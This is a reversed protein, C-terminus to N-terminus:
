HDGETRTGAYREAAERTVRFGPSDYGGFGFRFFIPLSCGYELMGPLAAAAVLGDRGPFRPGPFYALVANPPTPDLIVGAYELWAREFPLRYKSNV